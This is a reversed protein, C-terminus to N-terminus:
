GYPRDEIQDSRQASRMSLGGTGNPGPRWCHLSLQTALATRIVAPVAASLWCLIAGVLIYLVTDLGSAGPIGLREFLANFAQVIDPFANAV